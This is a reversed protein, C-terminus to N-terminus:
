LPTLIAAKLQVTSFLSTLRFILCIMNLDEMQFSGLFSVLGWVPFGLSALVGFYSLIVQFPPELM